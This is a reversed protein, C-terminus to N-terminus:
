WYKTQLQTFRHSELHPLHMVPKAPKPSHAMSSLKPNIVKFRYALGVPTDIPRNSKSNM